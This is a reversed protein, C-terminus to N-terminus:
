NKRIEIFGRMKLQQKTNKLTRTDSPTSSSFVIEGTPSVWKLHGGGTYTITWGQSKAKRVLVTLDKNKLKM